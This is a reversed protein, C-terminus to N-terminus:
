EGAFVVNALVVNMAATVTAIAFLAVGGRGNKVHAAADFLNGMQGSLCELSRVMRM